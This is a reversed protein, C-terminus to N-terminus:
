VKTKIFSVFSDVDLLDIKKIEDNIKQQSLVEESKRDLEEIEHRIEEIIKVRKKKEDPNNLDNMDIVEEASGLDSGVSVYYVPDFDYRDRLEKIGSSIEHCTAESERDYYPIIVVCFPKIWDKYDGVKIKGELLNKRDEPHLRTARGINQLTKVITPLKGGLFMVGTFGSINIGESLVDFHLVITKGEIDRIGDLYDGRSTIGLENIFHNQGDQNWSAGACINVGPIKKVLKERIEWMDGVSRCKVLLKPEIKSADKSNRSIFTSHADFTDQVFKSMNEVSKYDINSDYNAPVAIHTVPTVIYGKEVCEKFTLGIREGFVKQNDMLFFNGDNGDERDNHVNLDKPTATFFFCNDFTIKEFNEKFQAETDTALTHAEDCYLTNLYLDGLCNLSHYTTLIVVKRNVELHFKVWKNVESKRTTTQFIENFNLNRKLLAKNLEPDEQFKDIDYRSSGVFIFGIDGIIPETMNFIDDMHQGNLMLRHSAIAFVEEKSKIVRNLLDVMMMYGKGSGTPICINLRNKKQMEDWLSKQDSNLSAIKSKLYKM